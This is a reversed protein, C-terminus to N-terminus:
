TPFMGHRCIGTSVPNVFPKLPPLPDNPTWFIQSPLSPLLRLGQEAGLIVSKSFSTSYSLLPPPPTWQIFVNWEWGGWGDGGWVGRGGSRRMDAVLFIMKSNHLTDVNSVDWASLDNNFTAASSTYGHYNCITADYACFLHQLTTVELTNWASIPGHEVSGPDVFWSAV